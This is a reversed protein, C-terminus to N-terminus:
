RRPEDSEPDRWATRRRANRCGGCRATTARHV